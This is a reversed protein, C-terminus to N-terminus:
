INIGKRLELIIDSALEVDYEYHVKSKEIAVSLNEYRSMVDEKLQECTHNQPNLKIDMLYDHLAPYKSTDV